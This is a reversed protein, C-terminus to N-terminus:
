FILTGFLFIAAVIILITMLPGASNPDKKNLIPNNERDLCTIVIIFSSFALIGLSGLAKYLIENNEFVDWITLVGLIALIALAVILFVLIIQRITKFAPDPVVPVPNAETHGGIYKGAVMIIISVLALLGLTQSSKLIVNGGFVNWVGLMSIGALIIVAGIFIYAAENQINKM